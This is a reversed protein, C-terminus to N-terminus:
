IAYTCKEETLLTFTEVHQLQIVRIFHTLLHRRHSNLRHTM